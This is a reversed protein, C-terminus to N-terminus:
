EDPWEMEYEWDPGIIKAKNVLTTLMRKRGCSFEMHMDYGIWGSKLISGGWTSGNFYAHRPEPFYKGGQLMVGDELVEMCYTSNKTEVVIKTGFPQDEMIVGKLDAQNAINELIKPDIYKENGM